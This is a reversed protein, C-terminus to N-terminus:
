HLTLSLPTGEEHGNDATYIHTHTHKTVNFYEWLSTPSFVSGKGSIGGMMWREWRERRRRLRRQLRRLKKRRRTKGDLQAAM